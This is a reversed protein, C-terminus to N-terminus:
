ADRANTTGQGLWCCADMGEVRDRPRYGGDLHWVPREGSSLGAPPGATTNLASTLSLYSSGRCHRSPLLQMELFNFDANRPACDWPAVFTEVDYLADYVWRPTWYAEDAKRAYSSNQQAM